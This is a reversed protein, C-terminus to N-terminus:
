HRDIARERLAQVLNRVESPENKIREGGPVPVIDGAIEMSSAHVRAYREISRGIRPMTAAIGSDMFFAIRHRKTPERSRLIDVLVPSAPDFVDRTFVVPYEFSVAFRQLHTTGWTGTPRPDLVAGGGARGILRAAEQGAESVADDGREAVRRGLWLHREPKVTRM